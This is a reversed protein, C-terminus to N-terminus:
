GTFRPARRSAFSAIGEAADPESASRVLLAAECELHDHLSRCTQDRLLRKARGVARTATQSLHGALEDARDGLDRDDVVESVLGWELAQESGITPNVMTLYAARRSGVLRPLLYSTGGDPSLGAATYAMRFRASVGAVVVDAACVLGLGAGAAAGQVAVVVPADLEVLGEIAAHLVETIAALHSPLDPQEVFARLDGGVCFNAGDSSLLVVRVTSTAVTRQVADNLARALALDIANGVAGHTLRIRAVGREITLEVPTDM